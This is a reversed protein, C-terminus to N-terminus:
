GNSDEEFYHENLEFAFSWLWWCATRLAEKSVGNMTAQNLVRYIALAKEKETYADSDLDEFISHATGLPMLRCVEAELDKVSM